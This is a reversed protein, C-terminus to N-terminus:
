EFASASQRRLAAARPAGQRAGQRDRRPGPLDVGRRDELSVLQGAVSFGLRLGLLEGRPSEAVLYPMRLKEATAFKKRVGVLTMPREDFTISSNLVYHNYIERVSALDDEIAPRITYEFEPEPEPAPRLHPPLVRRTEYEEELM